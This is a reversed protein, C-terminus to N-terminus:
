RQGAVQRKSPQPPAEAGERNGTYGVIVDCGAHALATCIAAGIDGSGGTVFAARDTLEM